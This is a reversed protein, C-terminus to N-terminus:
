SWRRDVTKRSVFDWFLSAPSSARALLEGAFCVLRAGPQWPLKRTEWVLLVRRSVTAAKEVCALGDREFVTPDFLPDAWCVHMNRSGVFANAFGEGIGSAGKSMQNPCYQQRAGLKENRRHAGRAVGHAAEPM